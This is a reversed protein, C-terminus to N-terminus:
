IKKKKWDNKASSPHRWRRARPRSGTRDDAAAPSGDPTVRANGPAAIHARSEGGAGYVRDGRRRQKKEKKKKKTNREGFGSLSEGPGTPGGSRRAIPDGPVCM